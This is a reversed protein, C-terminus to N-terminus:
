HLAQYLGGPLSAVWGALELELLLASVREAPLGSREVLQDLAWTGAGLHALLAKAEEELGTGSVDTAEPAAPLTGGLEELIDEASEVLRAGEKILRHCGKSLPSHISGPMAFVERGQEAALRATILSGSRLAAEVVLVGRALGSILRNRRPFNEARAPTGLPFESLLLGEQALRLALPRNSPPYVRDLGTGVVAISKGRGALAGEHAAADIGLAMGSVICWGAESLTRAFAAADRRGQATANRSGVIAFAPQRLLAPDGKAYLLPPPDAIELLLRPYGPDALTLIHNDPAELWRATRALLEGDVARATIAAALEPGVVGALSARGAELIHSPLGFASLLRRYREPGLGPISALAVWELVEEKETM